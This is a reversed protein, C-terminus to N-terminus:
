ARLYGSLSVYGQRSDAIDGGSPLNHAGIVVTNLAHKSQAGHFELRAQHTAGVTWGTSTSAWTVDVTYWGNVVPTPASPTSIDLLADGSIYDWDITSSSGSTVTVSGPSVIQYRGEQHGPVFTMDTLLTHLGPIPDAGGPLHDRGHIM